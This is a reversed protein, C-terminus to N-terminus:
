AKSKRKKYSNYNLTLYNKIEDIIENIAYTTKVIEYKDSSDYPFNKMLKSKTGMMNILILKIDDYQKETPQDDQQIKTYLKKRPNTLNNIIKNRESEIEDADIQKLIQNYEDKLDQEKEKMQRKARKEQKKWQKADEEKRKADEEDKRIQEDEKEKRIREEEQKEGKTQKHRYTVKGDNIIEFKNNDSFEFIISPIDGFKKSVNRAPTLTTAIHKEGDTLTHVM